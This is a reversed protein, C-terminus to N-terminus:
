KKSAESSCELGELLSVGACVEKRILNEKRYFSEVQKRKKRRSSIRKTSM